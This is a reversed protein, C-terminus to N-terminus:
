IKSNGLDYKSKEGGIIHSSVVGIVHRSSTVRAIFYYIDSGLPTPM